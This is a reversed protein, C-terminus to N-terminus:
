RLVWIAAAAVAVAVLVGAFTAYRIMAQRRAYPSEKMQQRIGVLSWDWTSKKLKERRRLATKESPDLSM